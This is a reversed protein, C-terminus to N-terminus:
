LISFSFITDFAMNFRDSFDPEIEKKCLRAQRGVGGFQSIGDQLADELFQSILIDM